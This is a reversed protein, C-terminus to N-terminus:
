HENEEVRAMWKEDINAVRNRSSSSGRCLIYNVNVFWPSFCFSALAIKDGWHFEISQSCAHRSNFLLFWLGQIVLHFQLQQNLKVPELPQEVMPLPLKDWTMFAPFFLHYSNIGGEERRCICFDIVVVYFWM